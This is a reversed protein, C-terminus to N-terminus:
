LNEVSVVASSKYIKEPNNAFKFFTCSCLLEAIFPILGYQIHSEITVCTGEYVTIKENLCRKYLPIILDNETIQLEEGNSFKMLVKEAM